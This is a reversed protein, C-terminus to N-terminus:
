VGSARLVSGSRAGDGLDTVCERSDALMVALDCIVQRPDDGRGRQKMTALGRTVVSEHARGKYAVQALLARDAHGDSTIEVIILHGDRIVNM